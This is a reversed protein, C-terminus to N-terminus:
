SICRSNEASHWWTYHYSFLRKKKAQDYKYMVKSDKFLELINRYFIAMQPPHKMDDNCRLLFKLGGLKRFFHNPVTCWNRDGATLLRPIWALRLSTFMLDIDTMRLGGKELNQYPTTKKIRDKKNKWIFNFLKKRVAGAISDPVEINSVSHIIQCLGLPKIILVRGFLTM